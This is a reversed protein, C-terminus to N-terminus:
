FCDLRQSIALATNVRNGRQNALQLARSLRWLLELKSNVRAANFVVLFVARVLFCVLQLQYSLRPRLDIKIPFHGQDICRICFGQIPEAKSIIVGILQPRQLNQTAFNSTLSNGQRTQIVKLQQHQIAEKIESWHLAFDELVQNRRHGVGYDIEVAVTAIFIDKTWKLGRNFVQFRDGFESSFGAFFTAGHAGFQRRQALSQEIHRM